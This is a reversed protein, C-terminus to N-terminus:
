TSDVATAAAGAAAGGTLMGLLQGGVGGGILGAISNGIPGLNLKSLVAGAINGGVAGSILQIILPVYNM